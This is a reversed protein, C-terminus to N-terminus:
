NFCFYGPIIGVRASDLVIGNSSFRFVYGNQNYDIADSIFLENNEPQVALAYYLHSTKYIIPNLPLQSDDIAM